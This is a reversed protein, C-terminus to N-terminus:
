ARRWTRWSSTRCAACRARRPARPCTSRRSPCAALPRQRLLTPAQPAPSPAVPAAKAGDGSAPAAPAEPASTGNGASADLPANAGSAPVVMAGPDFDAFFERWSASVSDPNQLYQAYLDEVYGSNYGLPDVPPARPARPTGSIREAFTRAPNRCSGPLNRPGRAGSAHRRKQLLLKLTRGPTGSLVTETIWGSQTLQQRGIPYRDRNRAHRRQQQRENALPQSCRSRRSVMRCRSRWPSRSQVALRQRSMPRVSKEHM